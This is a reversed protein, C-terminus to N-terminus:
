CKVSMVSLSINASGTASPLSHQFVWKCRGEESKFEDRCNIEYRGKWKQLVSILVSFVHILNETFISEQKWLFICSHWSFYSLFTLIGPNLSTNHQSTWAIEKNCTLDLWTTCTVRSCGRPQTLGLWSPCFVAICTVTVPEWNSGRHKRLRRISRLPRPLHGPYHPLTATVRRHWFLLTPIVPWPCMLIVCVLLVSSVASCQM